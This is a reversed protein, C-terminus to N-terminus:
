GPLQDVFAAYADVRDAVADVMGIEVADPGDYTLAETARAADATFRSGRYQGVADVFATRMRALEVQWRAAVNEPLPAFSHGDIKNAGDHLLTVTVGDEDLARSYDVHMMVVGISGVVGTEPMTIADCASALLYAASCAHDNLIAMTPIIDGLRAIRRSLAFCGAVEGGFSDLEFVAGRVTSPASILREELTDIQAEIGEYSMVGSSKGLYSGKHVLSGEVEIVAVGDATVHLMEKEYIAAHRQVHPQFQGMQAGDPETNVLTNVTVNAGLVRPSYFDAISQAKGPELLLPTNFMREAIRHMPVTM